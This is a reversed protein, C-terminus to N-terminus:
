GLFGRIEAAWVVLQRTWAQSYKGEIRDGILSTVGRHEQDVEPLYDRAAEWASRGLFRKIASENAFRGAAMVDDRFHPYVERLFALDGPTLSELALLEPPVGLSYLAACFTIARPLHVTAHNGSTEVARSYGFLGIHLRRDRRQPTMAALTNVLPALREVQEQYCATYKQVIAQARPEDIPLPSGPCHALLKGVERRVTEPSHDFKFSSQVTFTQVSPYEELVSDVFGPRLNGRFPVGGVGIIPYLTVGSARQLSDLRQLAIKNLLAASLLGYNLAPDSRALFVRLYSPGQGLEELYRLYHGVLDDIRSLGAMDEVLPIVNISKPLTEGLWQALRKGPVLETSGMGAVIKQYYQYVWLPDEATATMPLIVEFIPPPGPETYFQQALDFSAPINHLAEEVKKQMGVEVAPNPIRLTLFVDRGLRRRRFFEPNALLLKMVVDVDAGKGEYDWMQEDCGLVSFVYDAEVIEDEGKIAEPGHAFHPLFANDPHQTSMAKPVRPCTDNETM